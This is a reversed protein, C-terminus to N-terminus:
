NAGSKNRRNIAAYFDSFVFTEVFQEASNKMREDTPADIKKVSDKMAQTAKAAMREASLSEKLRPAIRGSQDVVAIRTPEGKISFIIAPVIAFGAAILPFLLTGIIFSWKLVIKKYEHKVVALFKRM